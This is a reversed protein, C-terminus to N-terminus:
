GVDDYNATPAGYAEVTPMRVSAETNSGREEALTHWSLIFRLQKEVLVGLCYIGFRAMLPM